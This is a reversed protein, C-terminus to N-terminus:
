VMAGQEADDRLDIRLGIVAGTEDYQRFVNFAGDGPTPATICLRELSEEAVHKPDGIKLHSSDVYVVGIQEEKAVTM